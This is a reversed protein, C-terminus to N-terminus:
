RHGPTPADACALALLVVTAEDPVTVDHGTLEGFRRLRNLVTNRHCWLEQSVATVTGTRAWARVTQVLREREAPPVAALGALVSGVLEQGVGRASCLGAAVVPLWAQAPDVPGTLGPLADVVRLATRASRPVNALGHALPGIACPVADLLGGLGARLARVGAPGDDTVTGSWRALLVAHRPLAQVHVPRDHAGLSDAARRLQAGATAPAVVVLVPDDIGVDLARAVRAVDDPSPEAILDDPGDVQGLLAAVLMSREGHRERAILAAEDQYAIQVQLAHEEVAAWLRDVREVLLPGDAPDAQDRLADWLIRFNLRVATLLDNLPVGRHARDRGISTGIGTLRGPVRMRGIRRLLYDFTQAADDEMRALPVLGRAYPPVLLVRERFSRFLADSDGRLRTVLEEWRVDADDGRGKHM